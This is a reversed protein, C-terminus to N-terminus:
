PSSLADSAAMRSAAIWATMIAAHVAYRSFLVLAVSFFAGVYRVTTDMVAFCSAAAIVLVIGLAPRHGDPMLM